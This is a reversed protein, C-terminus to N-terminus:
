EDGGNETTGFLNGADDRILGGAPLGGDTKGTFSYLDKRKGTADVTFRGTALRPTVDSTAGMFHRAM